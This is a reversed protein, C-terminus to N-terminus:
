TAHVETARLRSGPESLLLEANLLAAGAAGRVTNHGLVYYKLGLVPCAEVRGVTVAMGGGADVDVAPAPRARDDRLVIPRDPASPLRTSIAPRWGAFLEKAEEPSVPRRTRVSVALLHGDRVPVRVCRASVAMPAPTIGGDGLTGLIRGPEQEVKEEEDGPHPHVTGLIDWATEGNFGAGSVAQYTAVTVAEVGAADHLPKLTLALPVAVCNPNTVIFGETDQSAALALHDPNVEPVILPVRPDQRFASANSVVSWGAAAFAPEVERAAGSPLASFAIGPPGPFAAPDCTRVPLDELGGYPRGPLRWAAARAYPKGASAGSALGSVSFHPHGDLLRILQQGVM